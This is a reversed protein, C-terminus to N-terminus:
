VAHPVAAAAPRPIRKHHPRAGPVPKSALYTLMDQETLSCEMVQLGSGAVASDLGMVLVHLCLAPGEQIGIRHKTFLAMDTTVAFTETEEGMSTREFRYTRIGKIQDFGMFRLTTEKKKGETRSAQHARQLCINVAKPNGGPELDFTVLQGVALYNADYALVAGSDFHFKLGNESEIFGSASAASLNKIRGTM